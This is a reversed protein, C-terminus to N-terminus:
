DTEAGDVDNYAAANIIWSPKLKDVAAQVARRDSIDLSRHDLAHLEQDSLVGVLDQGLQGGAGTILVTVENPCQVKLSAAIIRATSTGSIPAREHVGGRRM